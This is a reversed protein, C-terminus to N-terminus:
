SQFNYMDKDGRKYASETFLLFVWDATMTCTGDVIHMLWAGMKVPLAVDLWAYQFEDTDSEGKQCM